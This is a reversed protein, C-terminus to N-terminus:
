EADDTGQEKNEGENGAEEADDDEKESCKCTSIATWGSADVRDHFRFQSGWQDWFDRQEDPAQPLKYGLAKALAPLYLDFAGKVYDGWRGAALIAMEYCGRAVAASALTSVLLQLVIDSSILDGSLFFWLARVFAFISTLSALAVGSVLFDVTSRADAMLSQYDRPVVALLRPWIHIIEASYVNTSYLEFSRLVNGFRTSLVDEREAPYSLASLERERLFRQYCASQMREAADAAESKPASAAIRKWESDATDYEISYRRILERQKKRIEQQKFQASKRRFPWTYGELLRYTAHNLAMLSVAFAWVAGLFTALNGFEKNGSVVAELWHQFFDIDRNAVAFGFTAILAPLFFGLVFSKDLLKSLGSFM